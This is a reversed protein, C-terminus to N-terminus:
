KVSVVPCPAKLIVHQATSGFIMKGVKSRKRIGIFIKDAEIERALKILRKGAELESVLLHSECPIGENEFESKLIKLERDAAEMRDVEHYRIEQVHTFCTVLHVNAAYVKADIKALQIASKATDSGDYGVIINM